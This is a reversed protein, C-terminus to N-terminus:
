LIHLVDRINRKFMNILDDNTHSIRACVYGQVGDGISPLRQPRFGTISGGVSGGRSGLVSSGPVSLGDAGPTTAFRMQEIEDTGPTYNASPVTFYQDEEEQNPV